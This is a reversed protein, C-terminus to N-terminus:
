FQLAGLGKARLRQEEATKLDGGIRRATWGVEQFREMLEAHTSVVGSMDDILGDLCKTYKKKNEALIVEEKKEQVEYSIDEEALDLLLTELSKDLKELDFGLEGPSEITGRPTADRLLKSLTVNLDEEARKQKPHHAKSASKPAM